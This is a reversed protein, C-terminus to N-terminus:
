SHRKLDESSSLNKMKIHDLKIKKKHNTRKLDQALIRERALIIFVSDQMM